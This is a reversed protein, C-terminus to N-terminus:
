WSSHSRRCASLTKAPQLAAAAFSAGPRSSGMPCAVICGTSFRQVFFRFASSSAAMTGGVFTTMCNWDSSPTLAPVVWAWDRRCGTSKYKLLQMLMCKASAPGCSLTWCSTVTLCSFRSSLWSKDFSSASGYEKKM